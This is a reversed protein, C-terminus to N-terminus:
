NLKIWNLFCILQSKNKNSTFNSRWGRVKSYTRGYSHQVRLRQYLSPIFLVERCARFSLSFYARQAMEAPGMVWEEDYWWNSSGQREKLSEWRQDWSRLFKRHSGAPFTLYVCPHVRQFVYLTTFIYKSFSYFAPFWRNDTPSGANIHASIWVVLIFTYSRFSGTDM